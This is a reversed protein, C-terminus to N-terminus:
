GMIFGGQEEEEKKKNEDESATDYSGAFAARRNKGTEM